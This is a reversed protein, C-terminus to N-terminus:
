ERYEDIIEVLLRRAQQAKEALDDEAQATTALEAIYKDACSHLWAITKQAVPKRNIVKLAQGMKRRQDFNHGVYDQEYHGNPAVLMWGEGDKWEKWRALLIFVEAKWAGTCIRWWEGGQQWAELTAMAQYDGGSTLVAILKTPERSIAISSMTAGRTDTIQVAKESECGLLGWLFLCVWLTRMWSNM